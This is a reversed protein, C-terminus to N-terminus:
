KKPNTTRSDGPRKSMMAIGPTAGMVRTMRTKGIVSVEEEEGRNGSAGGRATGGM